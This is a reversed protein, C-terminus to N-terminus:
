RKNNYVFFEHPELTKDYIILDPYKFGFRNNGAHLSYRYDLSSITKIKEKKLLEIAAESFEFPTNKDLFQDGQVGRLVKQFDRRDLRYVICEYSGELYKTRIVECSPLSGGAYNELYGILKEDDAPLIRECCRFLFAVLSIFLFLSILSKQICGLCSFKVKENM